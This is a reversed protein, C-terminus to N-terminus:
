EPAERDLAHLGAQDIDFARIRLGTGCSQGVTGAIAQMANTLVECSRHENARFQLDIYVPLPSMYAVPLLMIQCKEPEARLHHRLLEALETVLSQSHERVVKDLSEDYFLKLVPM